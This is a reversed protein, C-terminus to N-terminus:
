IRDQSITYVPYYYVLTNNPLVNKAMLDFQQYYPYASYDTDQGDYRIFNQQNNIPTLNNRNLLSQPFFSNENVNLNNRKNNINEKKVEAVDL